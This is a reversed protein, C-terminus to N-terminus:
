HGTSKNSNENTKVRYLNFMFNFLIISYVIVYNSSKKDDKRSKTIALYVAENEAKQKLKKAQNPKVFQVYTKKTIKKIEM